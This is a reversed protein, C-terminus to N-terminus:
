SKGGAAVAIGDGRGMQAIAANVIQQGVRADDSQNLIQETRIDDAPTGVKKAFQWAVPFPDGPMLIGAVPRKGMRLGYGRPQGNVIGVHFVGAHSEDGAGVKQSVERIREVFVILGINQILRYGAGLLEALGDIVFELGSLNGNMAVQQQMARFWVLGLPPAATQCQTITWCTYSCFQSPVGFAHDDASLVLGTM